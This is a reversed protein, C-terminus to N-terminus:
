ENRCEVVRSATQEIMQSFDEIEQSTLEDSRGMTQIYNEMFQKADAADVAQATDPQRNSRVEDIAEMARGVINPPRQGINIERPTQVRRTLNLADMTALMQEDPISDDLLRRTGGGAYKDRQILRAALKKRLDSQKARTQNLRKTQKTTNTIKSLHRMEDSIEGIERSLSNYTEIRLPGPGREVFESIMTQQNASRNAPDTTAANFLDTFPQRVENTTPTLIGNQELRAISDPELRRMDQLLQANYDANPTSGKDTIHGWERYLDTLIENNPDIRMEEAKDLAAPIGAAMDKLWGRAQGPYDNFSDNIVRQPVKVPSDNVAPLVDKVGHVQRDLNRAMEFPDVGGVRPNSYLSRALDFDPSAMDHRQSYQWATDNFDDQAAKSAVSPSFARGIAAGAPVFLFPALANMAVNKPSVHGFTMQQLAISPVTEAVSETAAVKLLQRASLRTAQRAAGGAISRIIGGAGTSLILGVNVPDILSGAVGGAFGAVPDAEYQANWLNLDYQHIRNQLQSASTNPDYPLNRDGIREQWQSYSLVEDDEGPTVLASWKMTASVGAIYANRGFSHFRGTEVPGYWDFSTTGVVEGLVSQPKLQPRDPQYVLKNDPM